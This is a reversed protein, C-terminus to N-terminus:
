TPLNKQKVSSFESGEDPTYGPDEQKATRHEAVVSAPGSTFLAKPINKPDSSLETESTCGLVSFYYSRFLLYGSNEHMADFLFAM